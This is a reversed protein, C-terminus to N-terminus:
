PSLPPAAPDAPALHGPGLARQMLVQDLWRGHKWGVARVVGCPSFGMARHLGISGASESDGIVAVMQRFGAAECRRVLAELLARGVGRGHWLPAVYISDEVAFRYAPRPRYPGAYCYGSVEGENEAVLYPYGAELLATRRRAMEAADPPALEFSASGHQVAHAYIATIAALDGDRSERILTTM